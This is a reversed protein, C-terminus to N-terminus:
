PSASGCAAPQSISVFSFLIGLIALLGVGRGGSAWGELAGEDGSLNVIDWEPDLGLLLETSDKGLRSDSNREWITESRALTPTPPLPMDFPMPPPPPARHSDRVQSKPTQYALQHSAYSELTWTSERGEEATQTPVFTFAASSGNAREVLSARSALQEPTLPFSTLSEFGRPMPQFPDPSYGALISGGASGIPSGPTSLTQSYM